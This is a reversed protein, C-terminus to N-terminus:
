KNMLHWVVSVLLVAGAAILLIPMLPLNPKFLEWLGGAIFLLGIVVWFGELKLGFYKRAVQVILTIVGVGLLGISVKLKMLLAIGVWILFLSWGVTSLKDAFKHTDPTKPEEVVPTGADDPKQNEM